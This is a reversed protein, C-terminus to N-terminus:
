KDVHAKTMHFDFISQINSSMAENVEKESISDIEPNRKRLKRKVKPTASIAKDALENVSLNPFEACLNYSTENAEMEDIGNNVLMNSLKDVKVQDVMVDQHIPFIKEPMQFIHEDLKNISIDYFQVLKSVNNTRLADLVDHVPKFDEEYVHKMLKVTICEKESSIALLQSAVFLKIAIDIIGVSLEFWVAQLEEDLPTQKSLWCNEFLADTFTAWLERTVSSSTDSGGFDLQLPNWNMSGVGLARRASALRKEFMGAADPTGMFVVPLGITNVLSVIFRLLIDSYSKKSNLNQFEDIILIGINYQAVKNKMQQLLSNVSERGSIQAAYNTGLVDDLGQMFNGCLTKLQSDHPCEIKLYIVQTLNLSKHKVVQINLGLIREIATSKGGGPAGTILISEARRPNASFSLQKNGTQAQKYLEQLDATRDKRIPNRDVYGSRMMLDIKKALEFHSPFLIFQNKISEVLSNMRIEAPASLDPESPDEYLADFLQQDTKIPTMAEILPNGLYHAPLNKNYVATLIKPLPQDFLGLQTM